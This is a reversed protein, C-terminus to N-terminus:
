KIDKIKFHKNFLPELYKQVEKKIRRNQPEFSVDALADQTNGNTINEIINKFDEENRGEYEKGDTTRVHIVRVFKFPIFKYKLSNILTQWRTPTQM